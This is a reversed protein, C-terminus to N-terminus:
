VFRSHFNGHELKISFVVYSLFKVQDFMKKLVFVNVIIM